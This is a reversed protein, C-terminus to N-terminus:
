DGRSPQITRGVGSITAAALLVGLLMSGSDGMFIRAPYVNYPLFGLAAGAVIASLIAATTSSSPFTAPTLLLWAFFASAAIVVIGAALGDLGDILNIANVMVLVWLVTLPVAVDSGLSVVGQTPFWFFLLQVSNLILIGAALVQGAIKAPASLTRVDDVLGVFTIALAAFLAGQLESSERFVARFSPILYAVGLGVLAGVLIAVGGITPTPKPHIKRDSPQDIAGVRVAIWRILPTILAVAGAACLFVTLYGLRSSM